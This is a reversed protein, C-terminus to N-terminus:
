SSIRHTWHGIRDRLARPVLAHIFRNMRSRRFRVPRFTTWPLPEDRPKERLVGALLADYQQAMTDPHFRERVAQQASTRLTNLLNDDECLRGICDVMASLDGPEVIWGTKGSEVIWDTVGRIRHAVPVAGAAMAEILAIGFGEHHSPMVFVDWHAMHTAVDKHSRRGHFRVYPQVGARAFREALAQEDPGEGVVDLTWPIGRASLRQGLEPLLFIGKQADKLRGAYGLRIPTPPRNEARRHGATLFLARVTHPILHLRATDVYGGSLLDDYQRQSTAIVASLRDPHIVVARYSFPTTDYSRSIVRVSAPIHRIANWGPLSYDPATLFLVDINKSACWDVLARAATEPDNTDDAIRICGDDAFDDQWLRAIAQGVSVAYMTWGHPTLAERLTRYHAFVGGARPAACYAITGKM